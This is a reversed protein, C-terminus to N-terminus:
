TGAHRLGGALRSLVPMLDGATFLGKEEACIRGAEQHLFAGVAAADFASTGSEALLGGIFGALIDGSGGTGMLPNMGDIVATEGDPSAVFSVHGKLLVVAGFRGAAERAAATPDALVEAATTDLLRACEGPHPTLVWEGKLGPNKRALLNLGDADVLGREFRELLMALQANRGEGTGWGPGIVCSSCTNGSLDAESKWPRVMASRVQSAAVSYIDPDVFLTVLGAGGRAAAETALLAAGATGVSGGFVCSHGRRNKFFQPPFPLIRKEAEARDMLVTGPSADIVAPPFGIAVPRIRGCFPRAAPLYLARKAPAVTLTLDARVAPYGPRFGDGIGSPSDVSVVRPGRIEELAAIFDAAAGKLPGEIGLGTIGDVLVACGAALRLSTERQAAFSYSPVGLRVAVEHWRLSLGKLEDKIRVISLNRFGLNWAQRAMVLCDGANNGAGVVFVFVTSPDPHSEEMLAEFLRIGADEMLIEGPIGYEEISRRDIERMGETDVLKV